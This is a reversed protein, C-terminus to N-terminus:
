SRVLIINAINFGILVVTGCEIDISIDIRFM